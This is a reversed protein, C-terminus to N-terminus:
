SSPKATLSTSGSWYRILLSSFSSRALFSEYITKTLRETSFLISACCIFVCVMFGLSKGYVEKALPVECVDGSCRIGNLRPLMIEQVYEPPDSKFKIGGVLAMSLAQFFGVQPLISAAEPVCFAGISSYRLVDHAICNMFEESLGGVTENTFDSLTTNCVKWECGEHDNEILVLERFYLVLPVVSAVVSIFVVTIVAFKYGPVGSSSLAAGPASLAFVVVAGLIWGYAAGTTSRAAYLQVPEGKYSDDWWSIFDPSRSVPPGIHRDYYCDCYLEDEPCPPCFITERWFPTAFFVTMLLLGFLFYIVISYSATAILFARKLLGQAKMLYFLGLERDAIIQAVFNVLMLSAFTVPAAMSPVPDNPSYIFVGMMAIGFVMLGYLVWSGISGKGSWNRLISFKLIALVQTKTALIPKFSAIEGFERVGGNEEDGDLKTGGVYNDPYRKQPCCCCRCPGSLCCAVWRPSCGTCCIDYEDEEIENEDVTQEDAETLKLFVEELSSNSFGYETVNSEVGELWSVFSSLSEAEVGEEGESMKMKKINVVINGAGGADISVWEKDSAFRNAITSETEKVDERDVLISFQLASGHEAKLELPTGFAALEGKRMVAVMDALLDAEEMAHTTLRYLAFTGHSFLRISGVFEFLNCSM